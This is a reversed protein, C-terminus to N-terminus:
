GEKLIQMVKFLKGMHANGILRNLQIAVDGARSPNQQILNQARQEIGLSKLFERQTMLPPTKFGKPILNNMDRFNVHHTIDASGMHDFLACYKHKFLCQLTNGTHRDPEDGYDIIVAASKSQAMQDLIKSFYEDGM